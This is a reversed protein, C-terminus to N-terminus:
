GWCLRVEFEEPTLVELCILCTPTLSPNRPLAANGLRHIAGLLAGTATQSEESSRPSLRGKPSGQGSGDQSRSSSAGACAKADVLQFPSILSLWDAFSRKPFYLKRSNDTFPRRFSAFLYM